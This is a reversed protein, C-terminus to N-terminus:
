ATTGHSMIREVKLKKDVVILSIQGYPHAWLFIQHPLWIIVWM